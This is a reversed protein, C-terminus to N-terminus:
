FRINRPSTGASESEPRGPVGRRLLPNNTLAILVDEAARMTGRLELILGSLQPLQAPVFATARDLNDLIGSISELSAVLNMYVEGEADLITFLLGDPDTLETTIAAVNTLIPSIEAMIDDISSALAVITQDVTQPLTEVGTITRRIGSAIMGIETEDSGEGFAVRMQSAIGYVEDLVSNVRNMILSISDDHQPEVALGQAVLELAQPSGLIPIFAGEPLEVGRGAHFLFQNGLGVPSIMMEVISGQRVRDSYEEFISFIVEVNDNETLYFNIINGITFGRYQVAMNKNLGGASPLITTFSVDKAFWRQSRGLMIIVFVLSALSLVVFFGIIQDVFRIKFKM